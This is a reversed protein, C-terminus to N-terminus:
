GLDGIYNYYISMTPPTRSTLPLMAFTTVPDVVM